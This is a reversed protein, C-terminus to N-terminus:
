PNRADPEHVSRGSRGRGQRPQRDRERRRCTRDGCRGDGSAPLCQEGNVSAAHPWAGDALVHVFPEAGYANELAERLQEPSTQPDALRATCTALLGRPLPSLVPTFSLSAVGLAQAMEYRHQHDGVKYAWLDGMVQSGM